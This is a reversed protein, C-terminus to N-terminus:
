IACQAQRVTHVLFRKEHYLDNFGGTIRSVRRSGWRAVGLGASKDQYGVGECGQEEENEGYDIDGAEGARKRM